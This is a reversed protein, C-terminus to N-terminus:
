LLVFVTEDGIHLLFENRFTQVFVDDPENGRFLLLRLPQQIEAEISEAFPLFHLHRPPRMQVYRLYVKLIDDIERCRLFVTRVMYVRLQFGSELFQANGKM